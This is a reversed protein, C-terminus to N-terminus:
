HNWFVALKGITTGSELKRHAEAFEDQTYRGGMIPTVDGNQALKTVEHMCESLVHPKFDAVKLMNVGIVSKNRIMLGIPLMLGMKRIFNLTSFFSKRSASLESGGFLVMRGGSGLLRMDKKFTSGAVPNFSVDLSEGSLWSGVTTEYDHERYCVVEDAGLQRVIQEKDRSGIKACVHANRRKCLQILATGVGGAAAHVLVREGSQVNAAREVMYWATVFQTALALAEAADMEGIESVAHNQTIVHQAYGGFRCFAVVRKGKLHADAEAATELITGVVEYGIVCPLPPTERYLGRRAMVDAYNLGFAEVAILVQGSQLAPLTLERLAFAVEPNGTATLVFAQTKM